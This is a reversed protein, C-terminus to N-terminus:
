FTGADGTGDARLRSPNIVWSCIVVASCLGKAGGWLVIGMDGGLTLRQRTKKAISYPSCLAMCPQTHEFCTISSEATLYLISPRGKCITNTPMCLFLSPFLTIHIPMCYAYLYMPCKLFIIYLFLRSWKKILSFNFTFYFPFVAFFVLIVFMTYTLHSEPQCM